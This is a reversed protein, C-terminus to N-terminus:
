SVAPDPSFQLAVRELTARASAASQRAQEPSHGFMNMAFQELSAGVQEDKRLRDYGRQTASRSTVAASWRAINPFNDLTEIGACTRAREETWPFCAIDAISYDSGGVFECEELRRDLVTYLRLAERLYRERAYTTEPSFMQFHACQGMMPGFSAVQWFLWKLVEARGHPDNPILLNLKDALYLLIAGSEFVVIPDGGGLPAHDRIVPVKSNPSIAVFEPTFQEGAGVHVVHTRYEVEAEEFFMSIKYTNPSKHFYLDYM